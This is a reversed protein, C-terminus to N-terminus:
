HAAAKARAKSGVSKDIDYSTELIRPDTISIGPGNVVLFFVTQGVAIDVSRPEVKGDNIMVVTGTELAQRWRKMDAENKCAPDRVKIMGSTKSGHADVWNYDGATGFAHSYGSENKLRSSNFFDHDGIVALPLAGRQNCNWMVMDGPDVTLEAPTALFKGDKWVVDVHHQTMESKTSGDKVKITFPRDTSMAVGGAPVVDYVYSGPKMFRQGYCDTRQLARSDLTNQM